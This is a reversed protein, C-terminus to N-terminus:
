RQILLKLSKTFSNSRIVLLYMGNSLDVVNIKNEKLQVIGSKVLNGVINYIEFESNVNDYSNININILETAPNPFHRVDSYDDANEDINTTLYYYELTQFDCNNKDTVIAYYNGAQNINVTCNNLIFPVGNNFWNCNQYGSISLTNGLQSIIPTIQILGTTNMSDITTQFAINKMLSDEVLSFGPNYSSSISSSKFITTFFVNATLYSGFLSPHVDDASWLNISPYQSIVKKFAPGIPAIIQGATDRLFQYNQYITDILATGSSAYPPYGNKPGFGAYWIMHACPHYFLLSDRIKIHGEIVLSSSPFQGYGLCFRGQNDQLVLYDWDNSRILSYVLPNNMHASTGQSTDGVSVGGPMHSAVVVNKGSGLSIQKFLNPLDNQSTFSNGIFLVKTTDQAKCFVSTLLALGLILSKFFKFDKYKTRM